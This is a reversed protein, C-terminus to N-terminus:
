GGGYVWVRGCACRYMIMDEEDWEQGCGDCKMKEGKSLYPAIKSIYMLLVM